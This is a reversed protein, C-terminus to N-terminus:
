MLARAILIVAILFAVGLARGLTSIKRAAQEDVSSPLLRRKALRTIVGVPFLTLIIGTVSACLLGVWAEVRLAPPRQTPSIRGHSSGHLVDIGFRVALFLIVAVIVIAVFRSSPSPAPRSVDRLIYKDYAGPAVVKLLAFALLAVIAAAILMSNLDVYVKRDSRNAALGDM